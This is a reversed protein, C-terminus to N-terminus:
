AKLDFRPVVLVKDVRYGDMDVVEFRLGQLDFHDGSEPIRGLQAMILGSLTEYRIEEEEPLQDLELLDKVEDIPLMGDLLLSGDERRVVEAEAEGELAPIDGVIAELLDTLTVLGTIGGFEDVVLASHDKRGKLRDLLELASMAEPVILAPRLISQIDPTQCEQCQIFVDKVEVIGLLDDLVGKCVPFLSFGSHSIKQLVDEVPENIDLWVIDTRYTMLSSVKRDGLRFVRAVIEKEVEEFIGLRAGEFILLKVEEETVAPEMSPKVGLLRLIQETSFSLLSVLPTTIRALAKMPPAVRAAIREANNLAIRKPVLEGIVLSLYTIGLVVIGIGIAESYPAIWNISALASAIESAITAGGFAGSLIGVLTIGIQITSLFRTPEEALSLATQAGKEGEKARQQLRTKRAAVIAMESLALLSNLFVLLFVIILETAITSM